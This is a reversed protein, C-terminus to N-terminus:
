RVAEQGLCTNRKTGYKLMGLQRFQIGNITWYNYDWGPPAPVSRNTRRRILGFGPTRALTEEPGAAAPSTGGTARGNM